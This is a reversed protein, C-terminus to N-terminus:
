KVARGEPFTSVDFLVVFSNVAGKVDVTVNIGCHVPPKSINIRM